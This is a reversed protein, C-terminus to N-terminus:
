LFIGFLFQASRARNLIVVFITETAESLITIVLCLSIVVSM